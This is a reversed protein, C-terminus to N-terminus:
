GSFLFGNEPQNKLPQSVLKGLRNGRGKCFPGMGARARDLYTGGSFFANQGTVIGFHNQLVSCVCASFEVTAEAPLVPAEWATSFSHCPDAPRASERVHPFPGTKWLSPEASKWLVEFREVSGEPLSYGEIQPRRHCSRKKAGRGQSPVDQFCSVMKPSTKWPSSFWSGSTTKGAKALRAWKPVHGISTRGAQFFHM